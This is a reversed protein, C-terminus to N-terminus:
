QCFVFSLQAPFLHTPTKRQHNITSPQHNLISLLPYKKFDRDELMVLRM